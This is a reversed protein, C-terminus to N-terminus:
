NKGWYPQKSMREKQCNKVWNNVAWLDAVEVKTYPLQHQYGDTGHEPECTM